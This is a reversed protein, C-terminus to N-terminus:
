SATHTSSGPIRVGAEIFITKIEDQIPMSRMPPVNAGGTNGVPITGVFSKVGGVLLRPIQGLIEKVSKIKCGFVLMKWHVLSHQYPYAQGIVHARELQHWAETLNKQLMAKTYLGLAEKFFPQLSVPMRTSFQMGTSQHVVLNCYGIFFELIKSQDDKVISFAEDNPLIM